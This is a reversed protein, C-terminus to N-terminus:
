RNVITMTGEPHEKLLKIAEKSNRTYATEERTTAVLSDKMEPVDSWKTGVLWTIKYYQKPRHNM